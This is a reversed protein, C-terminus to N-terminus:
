GEKRDNKIKRVAKRKVSYLHVYASSFTHIFTVFVKLGLNGENSAETYLIENLIELLM